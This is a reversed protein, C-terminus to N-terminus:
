RESEAAGESPLENTRKHRVAYVLFAIGVLIMFLSYFQGRTMGLIHAADPERYNEVTIRGLAYVLFFIGTLIGHYLNKWRLRVALLALCPILGEVAAEYLQSPHRSHLIEGLLARFGENERSTEILLDAVPGHPNFGRDAAEGAVSDFQSLLEPAVEEAEGAVSRLQDTPFLWRFGNSDRTFEHLEGPFKMAVPASTIRGYLEGNIFNAIRGFFVGLTSVIVLNDGLGLWSIKQYRAYFWSALCIGAIGGHSSMGGGLLDFFSTPNAVFEGFNYLLMFGLRGGVMTGIACITIFDAVQNERLESAGLRVFWRIVFYAAVFGGVYALGYWRIGFTETFQIAFPDLSHVWTALIADSM